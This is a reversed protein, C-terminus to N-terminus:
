PGKVFVGSVVNANEGEGYEEGGAEDVVGDTADVFIGDLVEAENDVQGFVDLEFPILNMLGGMTVLGVLFKFIEGLVEWGEVPHDAVKGELEHVLVAIGNGRFLIEVIGELYM